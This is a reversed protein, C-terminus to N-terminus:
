PAPNRVKDPDGLRKDAEGTIRLLDQFDVYLCSRLTPLAKKLNDPFWTPVLDFDLPRRLQGEWYEKCASLVRSDILWAHLKEWLSMRSLLLAEMISCSGVPHVALPSERAGFWIVLDGITNYIYTDSIGSLDAGESLAEQLGCVSPLAFSLRSRFEQECERCLYERFGDQDRTFVVKCHSCRNRLDRVKEEYEQRLWSLKSPSTEM